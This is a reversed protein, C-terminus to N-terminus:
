CVCKREEFNSNNACQHFALNLHMKMMTQMMKSHKPTSCQKRIKPENQKKKTEKNQNKVVNMRVDVNHVCRLAYSWLSQGREDKAHCVLQANLKLYYLHSVIHLQHNANSRLVEAHAICHIHWNEQRDLPKQKRIARLQRTDDEM